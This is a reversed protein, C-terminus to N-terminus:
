KKKDQTAIISYRKSITENELREKALM